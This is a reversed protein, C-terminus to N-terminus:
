RRSRERRQGRRDLCRRPRPVPQSRHDHGVVRQADRGFRLDQNWRDIWRPNYSSREPIGVRSGGMAPPSYPTTSAVVHAGHSALISIAGQLESRTLEDGEPSDFAIEHGDIRRDFTDDTGLLAVVVDPDFQGLQLPWRQRWGPSCAPGKSEWRWVRQEGVDQTVGCGDVAADWVTLGQAAPPGSSAPRWATPSPTAWSSCARVPERGGPLAVTPATPPPRIDAAAVESLPTAAAGTTVFAVALLGATAPTTIRVPWRKLVGRRIPREVLYFVCDRGAFTAVLRAMLLPAGDLGTRQESILVYLPWHWLYLGYSIEGVWRLPPRLLVAGLLGPMPRTVSAIVIAVLLACLTFGGRYLWGTEEARTCGSGDSGSRRWSRAVGHLARTVNQGLPRRLQTLLLALLAGM